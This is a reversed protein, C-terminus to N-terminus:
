NRSQLKTLAQAINALLQQVQAEDKAARGQYHQFDRLAAQAYAEARHLLDRQRTPGSERDAARTHMI